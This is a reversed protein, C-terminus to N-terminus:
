ASGPPLHSATVATVLQPSEAKTRRTRIAGLTSLENPKYDFFIDVCARVPLSGHSLGGTSGAYGGWARFTPPGGAPARLKHESGQPPAAAGHGGQTSARREKHKGLRQARAPVAEGHSLVTRLKGM